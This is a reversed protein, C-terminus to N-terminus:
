HESADAEAAWRCRLDHAQRRQRGSIGVHLRLGHDEGALHKTIRANVTIQVRVLAESARRRQANGKTEQAVSSGFSRGVSGISCRGKIASVMTPARHENKGNAVACDCIGTSGLSTREQNIRMWSAALWRLKRPVKTTLAPPATDLARM